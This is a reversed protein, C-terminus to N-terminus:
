YRSFAARAAVIFARILEPDKTGPSAEVGSSVDVASAGSQRIADAVNDPNLGGALMWPLPARWVSLLGWDLRAANGGPRDAGAPPKAEIVLRDAADRDTPLDAATAVGVAHWVPLGFRARIDAVRAVPAYVQLVELPVARLVTAIEADAPDVFLGVRGLGAPASRALTAAEPIAVFRPSPPFFVLGMWDAGAVAAAEITAADRLGCLKIEGKM